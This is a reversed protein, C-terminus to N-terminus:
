SSNSYKAHSLYAKHNNVIRYCVVNVAWAFNGFFANAILLVAMPM